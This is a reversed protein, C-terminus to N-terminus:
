QFNSLIGSGVSIASAFAIDLLEQIKTEDMAKNEKTLHMTVLLLSYLMRQNKDSLVNSFKKKQKLSQYVEKIANATETCDESLLTLIGLNTGNIYDSFKIKEEKLAEYLTFSKKLIAENEADTLCLIKALLASNGSDMKEKKALRYLQDMKHVLNEEPENQSLICLYGYDLSDTPVKYKKKMQQYLNMTRVEITKADLDTKDKLNQLVAFSLYNSNKFGNKKLYRLSSVSTELAKGPDEYFSLLTACPLEIIGRYNSFAKTNKQILNKQTKLKKPDIAKEFRISLLSSICLNFDYDFLIQKELLNKHEIFQDISQELESKM